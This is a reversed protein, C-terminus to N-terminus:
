QRYRQLFYQELQGRQQDTLAQHFILLEALDGALYWDPGTAGDFVAAESGVGILGFRATGTGLSNGGHAPAGPVEVGDVFLRKDPSAAANFWGCILHWRGDTSSESSRLDHPSGTSDTTDWGVEQDVADRLALRWYEERDFSAVIQPQTSESRVLACVTIQDIAGSTGYSLNEIALYDDTGDFRLVPKRGLGHAVLAPRRASDSQVAHNDQGSQDAWNSVGDVDYTLETDSKLWLQLGPLEQPTVAASRAAETSPVVQIGRTQVPLVRRAPEPGEILVASARYAISLVYSAQFFVSWLKSLEELSLPEPTFKVTEVAGALDSESLFAFDPDEVAERIMNRPLVPRAELTRVVSGMVRQPELMSEDGHFTLLYHLELAVSPREVMRGDASRTPLDVNSLAANPSVQYMFLNVGPTPLKGNGTGDPRIHTVTAEVDSVDANLSGQLHKRLAATVTAIALHNSM